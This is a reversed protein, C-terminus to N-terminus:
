ALHTATRQLTNCHTATHQLTNCHTATHQLVEHLAAAAVVQVNPASDALAACFPELGAACNARVLIQLAALRV